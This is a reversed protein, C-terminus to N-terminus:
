GVLPFLTKYNTWFSCDSNYTGLEALKWNEVDLGSDLLSSVRSSRTTLPHYHVDLDSLLRFYELRIFVFWGNGEIIM